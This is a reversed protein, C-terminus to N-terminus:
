SPLGSICRRRVWMATGTNSLPVRVPRRRRLKQCRRSHMGRLTPDSHRACLPSVSPRSPLVSALAHLWRRSDTTSLPPYETRQVFVSRPECQTHISKLNRRSSITLIDIKRLQHHVANSIKTAQQAQHPLRQVVSPPLPRMREYMTPRELNGLRLIDPRQM